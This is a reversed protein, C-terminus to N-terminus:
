SDVSIVIHDGAVGIPLGDKDLARLRGEYIGAAPFSERKLLVVGDTTNCDLQKMLVQSPTSANQIEFTLNPRTIEFLLRAAGPVSQASVALEETPSQPSLHIFGKSGLYGSNKFTLSPMVSQPALLSVSKVVATSYLPLLLKFAKCNGGLAWEPLGRLPFVLSNKGASVPMHLRRRLEFTPNLDNVYLLDCGANAEGATSQTSLEIEVAVFDTSWCHRGDLDILIQPRNKPGVGGKAKLNGSNTWELGASFAPDIKLVTKLDPGSWSACVAAGADKEIATQIFQNRKSEWRFIKVKDSNAEISEKLYGFPLIPEIQGVMLCNNATRSMQPKRTMGVIANRCVYAGHINDPLGTLLVQPDGELSSYLSDLEARIQNSQIGAQRWAQNNNWLVAASSTLLSGTLCCAVFNFLKAGRGAPLYAFGITVLACLPATALYALRSGELDDAIAFIKYVPVLSLALWSAIFLFPKLTRRAAILQFGALALSGVISIEWLKTLPHHAGMLEQNVPVLLMKLGHLWGGLFLRWNAVFFLSDDYGGVFTGLAFRRLVFYGALFLWFIFTPRFARISRAILMEGSNKGLFFEWLLFLAPLTVAMEKSLLALAMTTAAGAFWAFKGQKRWNIYCWFSGLVFATVITDVRGTIWSVAEPHLPYLAFLLASALPWTSRGKGGDSPPQDSSPRLSAFESLSLFLFTAGAIHFGLNTLHFGLGNTHWLLYDTVMFVSILPRYFRTTTGDLWSSHFNRWILEPHKVADTLWTLHVFDDGSFFNFLVPLYVAFTSAALLGFAAWTGLAPKSSSSKTTDCNTGASDSTLTSGSQMSQKLSRNSPSKM